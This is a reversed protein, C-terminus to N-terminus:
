DALIEDLRDLFASAGLDGFIRRAEDAAEGSGEGDPGLAVIRDLLCIGLDIPVGVGRLLAAAADFGQSASSPDGELAGIAADGVDLWAQFRDSRYTLSEGREILQRLKEEDRLWVASSIGTAVFAHDWLGLELDLGEQTAAFAAAPSGGALLIQSRLDFGSVADQSSSTEKLREELEDLIAIGEEVNGRSATLRATSGHIQNRTFWTVTMDALEGIVRDALDWDGSDIALSIVKAGLMSWADLEGIRTAEEYAPLLLGLVRSPEAWGSYSAINNLARFEPRSYGYRHAFHLAGETVAEGEHSRDRLALVWGKTILADAIFEKLDLRAGEVLAKEVYRSAEDGRSAFANARATQAHLSAVAETVEDYEASAYEDLLELAEEIRSEM